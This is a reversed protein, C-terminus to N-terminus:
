RCHRPLNYVQRTAVKGTTHKQLSPSLPSTALHELIGSLLDGMYNSNNTLFIVTASSLIPQPWEEFL